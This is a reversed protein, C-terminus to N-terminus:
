AVLADDRRTVLGPLNEELHTAIERLTGCDASVL